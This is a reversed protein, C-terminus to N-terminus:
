PIPCAMEIEHLTPDNPYPITRGTPTFNLRQYFAHAAANNSTVMLHLQPVKRQSTWRTIEEVLRRGVGQKRHTPATWMSVLEARPTLQDLLVGAIGCPANGDMALFGIGTEGSWRNIRLSWDAETFQSERAYTSGFALPDEKLARLRIQKFLDANCMTIPELTIV